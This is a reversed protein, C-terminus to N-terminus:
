ELRGIPAHKQWLHHLFDFLHENVSVKYPTPNLSRKVDDRLRRLCDNVREKISILTDYKDTLKGETWYLKHLMQVETPTVFARKNAQLFVLRFIVFFSYFIFFCIFNINKKVHFPHRCLVETGQIPLEDDFLILLDNISRGPFFM